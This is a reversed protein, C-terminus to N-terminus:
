VRCSDSGVWLRNLDNNKSIWKYPQIVSILKLNKVCTYDYLSYLASACFGLKRNKEGDGKVTLWWGWGGGGYKKREFLSAEIERMRIELKERRDRRTEIRWEGKFMSAQVTMRFINRPNRKRTKTKKKLKMKLNYCSAQYWHLICTQQFKQLFALRQVTIKIKWQTKNSWSNFVSFFFEFFGDFLFSFPFLIPAGLFGYPRGSGNLDSFRGSGM